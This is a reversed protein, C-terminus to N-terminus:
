YPESWSNVKNNLFEVRGLDPYRWTSLSPSLRDIHEPEGLLNVVEKETMGIQLKRWNTKVSATDYNIEETVELNKELIIKELLEIRKELENIKSTLESISMDKVFVSSIPFLMILVVGIIIRNM